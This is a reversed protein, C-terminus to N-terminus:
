HGQKGILGMAWGMAWLGIVWRDGIRYSGFGRSGGFDGGFGRSGGSGGGGGDVGRVWKGRGDVRGGGVIGRRM